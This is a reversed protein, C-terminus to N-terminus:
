LHVGGRNLPSSGADYGWMRKWPLRGVRGIALLPQDRPTPATSATSSLVADKRPPIIVLAGSSHREVAAYVPEQDFIGDGIFRHIRRDVQDLGLLV